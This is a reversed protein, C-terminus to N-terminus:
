GAPPSPAPNGAAKLLSAVQSDIEERLVKGMTNRPFEEVAHLRSPCLPGLQQAAWAAVETTAIPRAPIFAAAITETGEVTTRFVAAEHVAPHSQLVKEIDRFYIKRGNINFVDDERGEITLLGEADIRALDRPYYWGDRFHEATRAPDLYYGDIMAPAKLRLRGVQGAPCPLDNEDVVEATIWSAIRGASEPARKLIDPTAISVAGIETSGYPVFVNPSFKAFLTDVLRKSPTAGVVRLHVVTPFHIDQDVLLPALSEAKSPSLLWHTVAHSRVMYALDAAANSLSLVVTGGAVLMGMAFLFGIPFNLDMPLIRSQATCDYNTKAIRDMMYGHTYLMGKPDGSTGSSLVIRFPDNPQSNSAPIPQVPAALDVDGLLIFRIGDLRMEARGAVIVTVGFRQAALRRREPPLVAHLPISVAGIRSIALLTLLHLPTQMMSVGITEGVRVGGDQLARALAHVAVVMERYSAVRDRLILAPAAPHRRAQLEIIEAVNWTFNGAGDRGAPTESEVNKLRVPFTPEDSKEQPHHHNKWEGALAFPQPPRTLM